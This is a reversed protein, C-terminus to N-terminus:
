NQSRSPAAREEEVSHSDAIQGGKGEYPQTHRDARRGQQQGQPEGTLSHRPCPLDPSCENAHSREVVHHGEHQDNPALVANRAAQGRDQVCGRREERHQDCMQQRGIFFQRDELRCACGHTERTRGHHDAGLRELTRPRAHPRLESAQRSRESIGKGADEPAPEPAHAYGWEGRRRTLEASRGKHQQRDHQECVPRPLQRRRVHRGPTRHEPDSQERRREGVHEIKANQRHGPRGVQQRDREQYRDAGDQESREEQSFRQQGRSKRPM